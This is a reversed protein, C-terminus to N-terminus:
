NIEFLGRHQRASRLNMTREARLRRPQGSMTDAHRRIFSGGPREFEEVVRGERLGEVGERPRGVELLGVRVEEDGAERAAEEGGGAEQGAGGDGGEAVEPVRLGHEAADSDGGEEHVVGHDPGEGLAGTLIAEPAHRVVNPHEPVADEGIVERM